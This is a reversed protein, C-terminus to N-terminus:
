DLAFITQEEVPTQLLALAKELYRQNLKQEEEKPLNKNGVVYTINTGRLIRNAGVMKAVEPLATIQM